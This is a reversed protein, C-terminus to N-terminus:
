LDDKGRRQYNLRHSVRLSRISRSRFSRMGLVDCDTWGTPFGMLWEVWPPNLRGNSGGAEIAYDLRDGRMKGDSRTLTPLVKVYRALNLSHSGEGVKVKRRGTETIEFDLSEVEQTTPTPFMKPTYNDQAAQLLNKPYIRNANKNPAEPM